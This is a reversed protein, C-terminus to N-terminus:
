AHDGLTIWYFDFGSNGGSDTLVFCKRRSNHVILIFILRSSRPAVGYLSVALLSLFFLSLTVPLNFIPLKMLADTELWVKSINLQWGIRKEAYALNLRTEKM